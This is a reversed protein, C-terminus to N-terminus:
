RENTTIGKMIFNFSLSILLIISLYELIHIIIFKDSNMFGYTGVLHSILEVDIISYIGFTFIIIFIFVKLLKSKITNSLKGFMANFNIGLHLGLIILCIYSVIKHLKNIDLEHLNLFPLLEQSSLLGLIITLLFTIIFMINIILIIIRKLNYSGQSINKIYNLNLVIHIIVLLALIIGMIEHLLAGTYVRSFELIMLIFMLIDVTLKKKM